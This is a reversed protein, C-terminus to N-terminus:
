SVSTDCADGEAREGNGAFTEGYTALLFLDKLDELSDVVVGAPTNAVNGTEEAVLPTPIRRILGGPTHVTNVGAETRGSAHLRRAHVLISM